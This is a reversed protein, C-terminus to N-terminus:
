RKVHVEAGGGQQQKQLRHVEPRSVGRNVDANKWSSAPVALFAFPLGEEHQGRLAEPFADIRVLELESSPLLSPPPPNSRHESDQNLSLAFSSREPFPVAVRAVIPPLAAQQQTEEASSSM